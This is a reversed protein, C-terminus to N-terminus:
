GNVRMINVMLGRIGVLEKQSGMLLSVKIYVSIQLNKM